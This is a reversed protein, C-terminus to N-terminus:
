EKDAANAAEQTGVYHAMRVAQMMEIVQKADDLPLSKVWEVWKDIYSIANDPLSM